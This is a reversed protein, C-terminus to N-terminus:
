ALQEKLAKLLYSYAKALVMSYSKGEFQEMENTGKDTLVLKFQEESDLDLFVTYKQLLIKLKTSNRM